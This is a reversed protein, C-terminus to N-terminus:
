GRRWARAFEGSLVFRPFTILQEAFIRLIMDLAGAFPAPRERRHGRGQMAMPPPLLRWDPSLWPGLWPTAASLLVGAGFVYDLNPTPKQLEISVARPSPTNHLLDESDIPKSTHIGAAVQFPLNSPTPEPPESPLM